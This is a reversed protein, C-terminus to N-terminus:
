DKKWVSIIGNMFYSCLFCKTLFLQLWLNSCGYLLYFICFLSFDSSRSNISVALLSHSRGTLTWLHTKDTINLTRIRQTRHNSRHGGWLSVRMDAKIWKQDPCSVMLPEQRRPVSVFHHYRQTTQGLSYWCKPRYLCSPWLNGCGRGIVLASSGTHPDQANSRQGAPDNMNM